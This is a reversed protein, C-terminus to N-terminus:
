VDRRTGELISVAVLQSAPNAAISRVVYGDTLHAHVGGCNVRTFEVGAVTRAELECGIFARLRQIGCFRMLSTVVSLLGLPAAALSFRSLNLARQPTTM